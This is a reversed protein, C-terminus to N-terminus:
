KASPWVYLQISSGDVAIMGDYDLAPASFKM